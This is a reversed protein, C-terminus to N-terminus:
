AHLARDVTLYHQLQKGIDGENWNEGTQGKVGEVRDFGHDEDENKM